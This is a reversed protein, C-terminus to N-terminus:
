LCPLTAHDYLNVTVTAKTLPDDLHAEDLSALDLNDEISRQSIWYLVLDYSILHRETTLLGRLDLDDTLALSLEQMCRALSQRCQLGSGLVPDLPLHASQCLLSSLDDLDGKDSIRVASLRRQEVHRRSAMLMHTVVAAHCHVCLFSGEVM